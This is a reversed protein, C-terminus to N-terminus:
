FDEPIAIKQEIGNEYFVVHTIRDIDNHYVSICYARCGIAKAVSEVIHTIEGDKYDDRTLKLLKVFTLDLEDPDSEHDYDKIRAIDIKPIFTIRDKPATGIQVKIMGLSKTRGLDFDRDAEPMGTNTRTIGPVESNDQIARIGVADHLIDVGTFYGGKELDEEGENIADDIWGDGAFRRFREGISTKKKGM